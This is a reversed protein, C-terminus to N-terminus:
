LMLLCRARARAVCVCVCMCVCVCVCVCLPRILPLAAQIERTRDCYNVSNSNHLNCFLNKYNTPGKGTWSRRLQRGVILGMAVSYILAYYQTIIIIIIIIIVMEFDNLFHRFLMGTFCTTLSSCFAVMNPVVCIESLALTSTCFM